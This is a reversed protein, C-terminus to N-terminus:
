SIIIETGVEKGCVKEQFVELQIQDERDGVILEAQVLGDLLSKVSGVLNDRDLLRVGKRTIRVCARALMGVENGAGKDLASVSDQKPETPCIRPAVAKDYSRTEPNWEYRQGGYIIHGKM